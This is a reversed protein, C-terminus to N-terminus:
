PEIKPMFSRREMETILDNVHRPHIAALRPSFIHLLYRRIGGGRLLEKLVFDDAFEVVSLHDYLHFNDYAAAWGQLREIVAEPLPGGNAETLIAEIEELTLGSELVNQMGTGTLRLAGQGSSTIHSEGFADVLRRLSASAEDLRTHLVLDSSIRLPPRSPTPPEPADAPQPKPDAPARAMNVVRPAQTAAVIPTDSEAMSFSQPNQLWGQLVAAAHECNQAAFPCNCEWACEGQRVCTIVVHYHRVPSRRVDAELILGNPTKTLRGNFVGDTILYNRGQALASESFRRLIERGPSSGDGIDVQSPM